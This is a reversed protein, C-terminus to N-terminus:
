HVSLLQYIMFTVPFSALFLYSYINARWTADKTHKTSIGDKKLFACLIMSEIWYSVIFFPILLVLFATPIMWYLQAEYPILWAAQVTVGLVYRWTDTLEPFTGGGGPVTFELVAMLVWVLPIGLATSALNAISVRWFLPKYMLFPIMKKMIFTEILVIPLLACWFVPWAIMIMPLGANAYAQSPYIITMILFVISRTFGQDRRHTRTLADLTKRILGEISLRKIPRGLSSNWM